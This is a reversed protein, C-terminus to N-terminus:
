KCVLHVALTYFLRVFGKHSVWGLDFLFPNLFAMHRAGILVSQPTEFEACTFDSAM